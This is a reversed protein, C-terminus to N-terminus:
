CTFVEWAKGIIVEEILLGDEDGGIIVEAEFGVIVAETCDGDDFAAIEGLVLWIEMGWSIRLIKFEEEDVEVDVENEEVVLVLKEEVVIIM